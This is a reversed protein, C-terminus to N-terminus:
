SPATRPVSRTRPLDAGRQSGQGAVREGSRRDREALRAVTLDPSFAVKAAVMMDDPGFYITRMHIVRDVHEAASLAAIIAQQDDDSASEGILLQKMRAALVIAIM